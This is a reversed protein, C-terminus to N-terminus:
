DSMTKIYGNNEAWQQLVDISFIDEPEMHDMIWIIASELFDDKPIMWDIFRKTQESTIM